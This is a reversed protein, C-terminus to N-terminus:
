RSTRAKSWRTCGTPTACTACRTSARCTRHRPDAAAVAVRGPGPDAQRVVRRLDHRRCSEQGHAAKRQRDIAEVSQRTRVDLRHRDILMQKRRSWCNAATPSRAASTIPCDATPSRPDQGREFMIIEAEESLRRARAAASAGGAVGGVIAIKM